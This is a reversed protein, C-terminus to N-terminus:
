AEARMQHYDVGRVRWRDPRRILGYHAALVRRIRARQGVRAPVARRTLPGFYSTELDPVVSILQVYYLNYDPMDPRVFGLTPTEEGLRRLVVPAAVPTFHAGRPTSLTLIIGRAIGEVPRCVMLLRVSGKDVTVLSWFPKGNPLYVMGRQTHAGDPRSQEEFALCAHARDWRIIVLYATITGPDGFGPRFCVYRGELEKASEETYGGIELASVAGMGATIDSSRKQAPSELLSLGDVGARVSGIEEIVGREQGVSRPFIALVIAGLVAGSAGNMGMMVVDTLEPHSKFQPMLAEPLLQSMLLGTLAFTVGNLAGGLTSLRTRSWTSNGLYSCLVGITITCVIPNLSVGLTGCFYRHITSSRDQRGKYVDSGFVMRNEARCLSCSCSSDRDSTGRFSSHAAVARQGAPCVTPCRSDRCHVSHRAARRGSRFVSASASVATWGPGRDIYTFITHYDGRNYRDM